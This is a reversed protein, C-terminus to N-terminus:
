RYEKGVRREESRAHQCKQAELWRSQIIAELNPVLHTLASLDPAKYLRKKEALVGGDFFRIATSCYSALAELRVRRSNAQFDDDHKMRELLASANAEALIMEAERVKADVQRLGPFRDTAASGDSVTIEHLLSVLLKRARSTDIPM